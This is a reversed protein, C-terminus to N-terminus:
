VGSGDHADGYVGSQRRQRARPLPRLRISGRPHPERRRRQIYRNMIAVNFGVTSIKLSSYSSKCYASVYQSGVLGFVSAANLIWGRDGSPQQPEQTIMQKSAYKVGYYVGNVNAEITRHYLDLPIDWIPAPNRSELAFGANNRIM